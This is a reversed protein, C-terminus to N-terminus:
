FIMFLMSLAHPACYATCQANGGQDALILLACITLQHQQAKIWGATM